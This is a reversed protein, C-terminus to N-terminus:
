AVEEKRKERRDIITWRIARWRNLLARHGGCLSLEIRFKFVDARIECLRALRACPVILGRRHIRVQCRLQQDDEPVTPVKGFMPM